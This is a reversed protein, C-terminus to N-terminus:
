PNTLTDLMRNFRWDSIEQMLARHKGHLELAKERNVPSKGLETRLDIATKQVEAWKERIEQTLEPADARNAYGRMPCTKGWRGGHRGWEKGRWEKAQGEKNKGEKGKWDRASALGATLVTVLLAALLIKKMNM